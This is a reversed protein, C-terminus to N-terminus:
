RLYSVLEIVVYSIAEESTSARVSAVVRGNPDITANGSVENSAFNLRITVQVEERRNKIQLETVNAFDWGKPLITKSDIVEVTSGRGLEARINKAYRRSLANPLLAPDHVVDDEHRRSIRKSAAESIGAHLASRPAHRPARHQTRGQQVRYMELIKWGESDEGSFFKDEAHELNYAWVRFEHDGFGPDGADTYVIAYLYLTGHAGPKTVPQTSM